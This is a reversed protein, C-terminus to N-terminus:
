QSIMRNKLDGHSEAWLYKSLYIQNTKVVTGVFLFFLFQLITQFDFKHLDVNITFHCNICKLWKDMNYKTQM